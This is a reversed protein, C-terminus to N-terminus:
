SPLKITADKGEVAQLTVFSGASRALKGGAGPLLELDHVQTGALLTSIPLRNGIKISAKNSAVVTDGVKLGDPALLYRKEGDRYPLLSIFASRNPDYEITQVTAAIDLKDIRRFDVERIIKKFGGGRHRVTIKGSSNRGASKAKSIFLRRPAEHKKSLLKRYDVVSTDRRSPTTPKYLKISM